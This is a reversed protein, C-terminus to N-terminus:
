SCLINQGSIKTLKLFGSEANTSDLALEELYRFGKQSVQVASAAPKVTIHGYEFLTYAKM